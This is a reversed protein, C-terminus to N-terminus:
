WQKKGENQSLNRACTKQVLQPWFNPVSSVLTIGEPVPAKTFMVGLNGEGDKTITFYEGNAISSLRKNQQFMFTNKLNDVSDKKCNIEGLVFRKKIPPDGDLRIILKLVLRFRGKEHDGGVIMDVSTMKQATTKDLVDNIDHDLLKDVLKYWYDISEKAEIKYAKVEPEMHGDSLCRIDSEKAFLQRQFYDNCHKGISRSQRFDVEADQWM